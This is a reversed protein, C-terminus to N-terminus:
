ILYAARREYEYFCANVASEIAIVLGEINYDITFACNYVKREDENKDNFPYLFVMIDLSSNELYKNTLIKIEM